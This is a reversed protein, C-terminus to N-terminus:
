NDLLDRLTQREAQRSAQDEQNSHQKWNVLWAAANCVFRATGSEDWENYLRTFGGDVLARKGDQDFVATVCKGDSSNVLRNLGNRLTISSITVGEFLHNLGTTVLHQYFGPTTPGSSEDLVMRGIFNGSMSSDFLRKMLANADAHYPSNDGWIYLGRGAEFFSVFEDLHQPTLKVVSDSIIWAQSCKELVKLFEEMPPPNNVYRHVKFGKRRLSKIPEEFTFGSSCYLQLVMIEHGLFGGDQALDWQSGTANGHRDTPVGRVTTRGANVTYPSQGM